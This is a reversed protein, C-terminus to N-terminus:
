KMTKETWISCKFNSKIKYFTFNRLDRGIAFSKIKIFTFNRLARGIAVFLKELSFQLFILLKRNSQDLEIFTFNYRNEAVQTQYWDFAARMRVFDYLLSKRIACGTKNQLSPFRRM